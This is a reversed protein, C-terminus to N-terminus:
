GIMGGSFQTKPAHSRFIGGAVGAAPTKWFSVMGPGKAPPNKQSKGREKKSKGVGPEQPVLRTM